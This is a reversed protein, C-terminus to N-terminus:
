LAFKYGLTVAFARSKSSDSPYDIMDTLGISYRADVVWRKWEYSLGIPISFAIKNKSGDTIPIYEDEVHMKCFVQFGIQVGTKVAFGKIIYYNALVPVNIYDSFLETDTNKIKGGEMSFFAGTSISLPNTLQYEVAIGTNWGAKYKTNDSSTNAVSVGAQPIISFRGKETQAMAHLSGIAIALLFVMRKM